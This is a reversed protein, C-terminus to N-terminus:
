SGLPLWFLTSGVTGADISLVVEWYDGKRVPMTFSAQLIVVTGDQRDCWVAQRETTPPNASDTYGALVAASGNSTTSMIAVVLGDTAAQYITGAVKTADWAGFLSTVKAGTIGGALDTNQIDGTLALKSYAIAAAPDVTANVILPIGYGALTVPTGTLKAWALSGIFSPNSYVQDAYVLNGADALDELIVDGNFTYPAVITGGSLQVDVRGNPAYFAFFGDDDATFPNTLPTPMTHNDSYLQPVPSNTGAVFVQVTAGSVRTFAGILSAWNQYRQM